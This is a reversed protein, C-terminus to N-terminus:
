PLAFGPAHSHPGCWSMLTARPCRSGPSAGARLSRAPGPRRRAARTRWLSWGCCRCRLARVRMCCGFSPATREGCCVAACGASTAGPRAPMKAAGHAGSVMDAVLLCETKRAPRARRLQSSAHSPWSAPRCCRLMVADCCDACARSGLPAAGPRGRREPRRALRVRRPRVRRVRVRPVALRRQPHRAPARVRRADGGPVDRLM